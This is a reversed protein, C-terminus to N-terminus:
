VDRQHSDHKKCTTAHRQCFDPLCPKPWQLAEDGDLHAMQLAYIASRMQMQEVRFTFRNRGVAWVALGLPAARCWLVLCINCMHQAHLCCLLAKADRPDGISCGMCHEGAGPRLSISQLRLQQEAKIDVGAENPEILKWGIIKAMARKHWIQGM